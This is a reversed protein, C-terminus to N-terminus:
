HHKLIQQWLLQKIKKQNKFEIQYVKDVSSDKFHIEAQIKYTNWLYKSMYLVMDPEFIRSLGASKEIGLIDKTTLKNNM